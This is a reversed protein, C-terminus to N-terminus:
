RYLWANRALVGKGGLVSIALDRALALPGGAHNYVGQRFSARQVKTARAIRAGEYIQFAQAPAADGQLAHGLAEADEIAQAAGQALFPVMPHAADGLLTVAGKSWHALAPRTLLPWRRWADGALILEQLPGAAASFGAADSLAAGDRTAPEQPEKRAGDEIIVVASVISADRLPYHVVHAGKGLWLNVERRRLSAPALDAPLVARWATHGSYSLADKADRFLFPRVTSRVGDAGVLALAEFDEPGKEGHLRLYVAGDEEEFDGVRANVRISIAASEQAAALLLQQLDARHFLRFPAGWREAAGQLPLAALERGDRARRIVIREPRLAMADLAAGLGLGQLIRGANPAIQLGAGVEEIVPARELVAVRRGARALALAASLGGVGAGAVAIPASHTV